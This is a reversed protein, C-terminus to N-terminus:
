KAGVYWPNHCGGNGTGGPQYTCAWCQFTACLVPAKWSPPDSSGGSISELENENLKRSGHYDKLEQPSIDFGMSKALEATASFAADENNEDIQTKSIETAKALQKPDANMADYFSKIKDM